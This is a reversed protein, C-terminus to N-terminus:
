MGEDFTAGRAVEERIRELMMFAIHGENAHWISPGIGLTRLIRVGGIGLVIEQKIRQEQDAIYLRSSVQRDQPANEEINTDLLYLNVRGLRVLWVGIHLIRDVLQVRALSRKGEPSLIPNVPAEEFDLQRYFEEQWGDASIHQHFYGYPYMFGVAVLPLGLDSAEKCVDGALVGLGGAYIPLSNHIAYEMSFYTIPGQQLDAYNTHCWTTSSSMEADFTSM